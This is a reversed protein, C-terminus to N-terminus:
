PVTGGIFFGWSRPVREPDVLPGVILPRINLPYTNMSTMCHIKAIPQLSYCIM